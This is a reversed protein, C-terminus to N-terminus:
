VQRTHATWVRHALVCYNPVTVIVVGLALNQDVLHTTNVSAEGADTASGTGACYYDDRRHQEYVVGSACQSHERQRRRFVRGDWRVALTGGTNAAAHGRIPARGHCLPAPVKRVASSGSGVASSSILLTRGKYFV